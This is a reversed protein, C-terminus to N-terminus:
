SSSASTSCGVPVSRLNASMIGASLTVAVADVTLTARQPWKLYCCVPWFGLIGLCGDLCCVWLALQSVDAYQPLAAHFGSPMNGFMENLIALCRRRIDAVPSTLLALLAPVLMGSVPAPAPGWSAGVLQTEMQLCRLLWHSLSLKCLVFSHM